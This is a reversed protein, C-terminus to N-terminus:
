SDRPREADARLVEDVRQWDIVAALAPWLRFGRRVYFLDRLVIGIGMGLVFAAQWLSLYLYCFVTAGIFYGAILLIGRASGAYMRTLSIGQSRFSQYTILFHRQLPTLQM